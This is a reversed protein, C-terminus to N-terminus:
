FDGFFWRETLVHVEHIFGCVRSCEGRACILCLASRSDDFGAADGRMRREVIWCVHRRQRRAAVCVVCM